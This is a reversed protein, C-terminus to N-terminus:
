GRAPRIIPIKADSAAHFDVLAVPRWPLNLANKGWKASGM